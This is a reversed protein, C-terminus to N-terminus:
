NPDFWEKKDIVALLHDLNFSKYQHGNLAKQIAKFTNFLDNEDTHYSAPKYTSMDISYRTAFEDMLLEADLGTIGLDDFFTTSQTPYVGTQSFVFECLREKSSEGMQGTTYNEKHLSFLLRFLM